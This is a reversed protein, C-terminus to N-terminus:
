RKGFKALLDDMTYNKDSAVKSKQKTSFGRDKIPGRKTSSSMKSKSAGQPRERAREAAKPAAQANLRRTLGIRRRQIDLDIVKVEVVDGVAIVKSPDDVFQDSLESIHILGDQHVGIDVFAGFKTVNTVTGPVKMGLALDEIESIDDSYMLRTGEERPDRGPKVLEAAIDQLTPMGVRETVYKELSIAEVNAKNGVIETVDLKQDTVFQEVIDYSEPHVSSNDLPNASEPVRLFGAAQQYAKPGLGTVKLLADRSTFKGNKDRSAVINKAVTGGIGSVYGLLKYSATNVNVGVRNVCSEVVETLSKNLKAVNVDHQYQGVGISRPDIKVLEALPDQLRRAISVASRITPDLDPFEERAIDMTSYVSAGAESVVLRKVDKLENEKIVTTVLRNIERSGTGNGIAVCKVNFAKILRLVEAKAHTTKNTERGGLDPYITASDLLKGTEDVAALKSGTRLGPDVGLVVKGPIPPLLLLNSLNESFVKIADNEATSKLHLRMETEISPSLSRKYADETATELFAKVAPTMSSETLVEKKLAAVINDADVVISMKLVKEAEGRRVAMVRHSQATKISESYEFYNEYKSPDVKKGKKEDTASLTFEIKKSTLVGTDFSMERVLQRLEATEAIREVFIDSAGTLADKATKVRLNAEVKADEPTVFGAALEVLDTITTQGALIKELLAELGKEKAAQGRTRRKPKFPLYLDELAQKTECAEFKAKLEAFKGKLEPKKSCHEEVVKLYKVKNSELEQLYHFRDRITRLVVEDLSGTMEKRYRAVFPITCEEEFMLKVTNNVQFDKLDLEGAIKQILNLM